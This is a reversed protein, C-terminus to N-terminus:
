LPYFPGRVSANLLVFHSYKNRFLDMLNRDRSTPNGYLAVAFDGDDRLVGDGFKGKTTCSGM